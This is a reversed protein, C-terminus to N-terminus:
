FLAKKGKGSEKEKKGEAYSAQSRAQELLFRLAELAAEKKNAARGGSLMLRKVKSFASNKRCFVGLYVLGVEKGELAEPGLNGTTSLAFDSGTLGAAGKAMERATEESVMGSAGIVASPVGLIREKAKITYSVVGADFFISAGPLQTIYHSILGGTCSEAASLTLGRDKFLSHIGAVVDLVDGPLGAMADNRM